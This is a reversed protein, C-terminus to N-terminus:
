ISRYIWKRQNLRLPPYATQSYPVCDIQRYRFLQLLHQHHDQHSPGAHPSHRGEGGSWVRLTRGPSRRVARTRTTRIRVVRARLLAANVAAAMERQVGRQEIESNVRTRKRRQEVDEHAHM